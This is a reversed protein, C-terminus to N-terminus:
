YKRGALRCYNNVYIILCCNMLKMYEKLNYFISKLLSNIKKKFKFYNKKKMKIIDPLNNNIKFNM